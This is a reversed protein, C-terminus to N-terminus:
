RIALFAHVARKYFPWAEDEKLAWEWRLTSGAVAAAPDGYSM